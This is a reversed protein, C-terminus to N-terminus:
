DRKKLKLFNVLDQNNSLSVNKEYFGTTLDLPAGDKISNILKDALVRHNERTFHNTRFDIMWTFTKVKICRYLQQNAFERLSTSWLNEKSIILNPYRENTLDKDTHDDKYTRLVITKLNLRQTVENLNHLFNITMMRHVERNDLYKEYYEIATKEEELCDNFPLCRGASVSPRDAFFFKLDPVALFIILMDNHCLQDRIKEFELAIAGISASPYSINIQESSFEKAVLSYWAEHDPVSGYGDNRQSFSNGIIYLKRTM